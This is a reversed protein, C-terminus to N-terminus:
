QLGCLSCRGASCQATHAEGKSNVHDLVEQQSRFIGDTKILYWDGIPSGVYSKTDWQTFFERGYGLELIKNKVYSTNLGVSYRFDGIQDKWNVSLEFGKNELSAANVM